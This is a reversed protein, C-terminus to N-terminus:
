RNNDGLIEVGAKRGSRLREQDPIELSNPKADPPWLTSAIGADTRELSYGTSQILQNSRKSDLLNELNKEVIQFSLETIM